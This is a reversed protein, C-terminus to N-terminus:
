ITEQQKNETTEASDKTIIDNIEDCVRIAVELEKKLNSQHRTGVLYLPVGVPFLVGLATGVQKYNTIHYTLLQRVIPFDMAKNLLLQNRSNSLYDVTDEIKQSLVRLSNKDYGQQLYTFYNQRQAYRSLFSECHQKLSAIKELAVGYDVEEIIVEKLALHRTQHLGLLRRFFNRYADANFVASDDVAKKTLFIGLPLLVASSLWMGEWVPWRGDRALKYGM